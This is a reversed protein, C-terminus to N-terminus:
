LSKLFKLMLTKETCAHLFMTCILNFDSGEGLYDGISRKSLLEGKFLWQAIEESSEGLLNHM